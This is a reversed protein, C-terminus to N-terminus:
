LSVITLQGRAGAARAIALLAARVASDGVGGIHARQKSLRRKIAAIEKPTNERQENYNWRHSQSNEYVDGYLEIGASSIADAIAASEKHYGYGGASGTGSTYIEAYMTSYIDSIPGEITPRVNSATYGHVWISAYVVSASASRGMYVRCDVFTHLEKRGPHKALVVYKSVTEKDNAYNKANQRAATIIAKM